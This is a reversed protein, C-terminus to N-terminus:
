DTDGLHWVARNYVMVTVTAAEQRKFIRLRSFVCQAQGGEFQRIQMSGM